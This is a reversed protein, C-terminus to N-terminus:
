GARSYTLLRRLDELLAKAMVRNSSSPAETLQQQSLLGQPSPHSELFPYRMVLMGPPDAIYVFGAELETSAPTLMLRVRKADRGLALILQAM